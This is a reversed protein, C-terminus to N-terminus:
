EAGGPSGAPGCDQVDVHGGAGEVVAALVM